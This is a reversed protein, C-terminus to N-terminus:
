NGESPFVSQGGAEVDPWDHLDTVRGEKHKTWKTM